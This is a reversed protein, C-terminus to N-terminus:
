RELAARDWGACNAGAEYSSQLFDLLAQKPDDMQRLDDYRLLAMPSGNQEAWFAPEPSLRQESLGTPAPAAYCYFAPEPFNPDGFWFGASNVEHSYAERGVPDPNNSNPAARGSFRTVALDFSHWFMHVPSCKGVFRSRFEQLVRDVAVLATWARHVMEPEYDKHERDEAFPITSGCKYPLPLIHPEIGVEKLAAMAEHYFDCIPKGALGVTRREQSSTRIVLQHQNLDLGLECNGHELPIRRTTLGAPSLYLPVHWWHNIFPHLKLRTKGVIQALLQLHLKTDKWQDYPLDPLHQIDM